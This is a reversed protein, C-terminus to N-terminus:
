DVFPLIDDDRHAIYDLLHEISRGRNYDLYRINNGITIQYCLLADSNTNNGALMLISRALRNRLKYEKTYAILRPQLSTPYVCLRINM